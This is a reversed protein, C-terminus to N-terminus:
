GFRTGSFAGTYLGLVTVSLKGKFLLYVLIIRGPVKKVELMNEFKVMNPSSSSNLFVAVKDSTAKSLSKRIVINGVQNQSSPTVLLQCGPSPQSVAPILLDLRKALESIQEILSTLSVELVAFRKEIDFIVPLTPKIESFSGPNVFAVSCAIPVSHKSYIAALRSKDMDLLSMHSPKGSYLSGNVSCNLSTHRIKKCKTCKSFGQHFWQLNAGKLVSTIGMIVDLSEALNFCVIACKAQVYTISHQNIMCTKRSVSGIFDWINHANTRVSLIYLLVRHNDKADWLEKNMNSRAIHVVDKRILISWKATVLDAHDIAEVSTRVPIKKLVVAWDSHRTSKRLDTNVLIKVEEAKKSTQVLSLKSTFMAKIIEAFKSPTSAKGFGNIKSFLKRIVQLKKQSSKGVMKDLGIDLTFFKHVSINILNKSGVNKGNSSDELVGGRKKKRPLIPRFGNSTGSVKATKKM